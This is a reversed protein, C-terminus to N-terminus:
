YTGAAAPPNKQYIAITNNATNLQSKLSENEHRLREISVDKNSNEKLIKKTRYYSSLNIITKNYLDKTVGASPDLALSSDSELSSTVASMGKLKDEIRLYILVPDNTEANNKLNDLSDFLGTFDNLNKQFDENLKRQKGVLIM